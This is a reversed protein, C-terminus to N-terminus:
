YEDIRNRHLLILTLVFKIHESNNHPRRARKLHMDANCRACVYFVLCAYKDLQISFCDCEDYLLRSNMEIWLYNSFLCISLSIVPSLSLGLDILNKMCLILFLLNIQIIRNDASPYRKNWLNTIWFWCFRALKWKPPTSLLWTPRHWKTAFIKKKANIGFFFLTRCCYCRSVKGFWSLIIFIRHEIWICNTPANCFVLFVSRHSVNINFISLYGCFSIFGVAFCCVFCIEKAIHPEQTHTQTHAEAHTHALLVGNMTRLRDKVWCLSKLYEYILKDHVIEQWIKKDQSSLPANYRFSSFFFVVLLLLLNYCRFLCLIATSFMPNSCFLCSQVSIRSIRDGHTMQSSHTRVVPRKVSKHQVCLIYGRQHHVLRFHQKHTARQSTGCHIPSVYLGCTSTALQQQLKKNAERTRQAM